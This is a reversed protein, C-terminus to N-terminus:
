DDRELKIINGSAAEVKMEIEHGSADYGEVEWIGDDLEVEEIKVIGKEFALARVDEISIPAAAAPIAFALSIALFVPIVRM